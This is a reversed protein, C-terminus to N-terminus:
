AKDNKNWKDRQKIRQIFEEFYKQQDSYIKSLLNKYLIIQLNILDVQLQIQQVREPFIQLQLRVQGDIWIKDMKCGVFRFPDVLNGGYSNMLRDQEDQIAIFSQRRFESDDTELGEQNDEHM